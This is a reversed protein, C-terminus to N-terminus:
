KRKAKRQQIKRGKRQLKGKARRQAKVGEEVGGFINQYGMTHNMALLMDFNDPLSDKLRQHEDEEPEIEILQGAGTEEDVEWVEAPKGAMQGWTPPNGAMDGWTPTPTVQERESTARAHPV